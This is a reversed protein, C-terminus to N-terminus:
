AAEAEENASEAETRAHDAARALDHAVAGYEHALFEDGKEFAALGDRYYKTARETWDRIREEPRGASTEDSRLRRLLDYARTLDGRPGPEEGKKKAVDKAKAKHKAKPPTDDDPPQAPLMGALGLGMLATLVM